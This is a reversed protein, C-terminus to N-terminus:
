KVISLHKSLKGQQRNPPGVAARTTTRPNARIAVPTQGNVDVALVVLLVFALVTKM